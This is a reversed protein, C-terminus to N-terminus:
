IHSQILSLVTWKLGSRKVPRYGSFHNKWGWFHTLVLVVQRNCKAMGGGIGGAGGTIIVVKEKLKM